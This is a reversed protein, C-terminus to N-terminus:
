HDVARERAKGFVMNLYIKEEKKTKLHVAPSHKKNKKRITKKNIYRTKNTISMEIQMATKCIKCM